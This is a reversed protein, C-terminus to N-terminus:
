VWIFKKKKKGKQQLFLILSKGIVYKPVSVLNPNMSKELMYSIKYNKDMNEILPSSLRHRDKMNSKKASTNM